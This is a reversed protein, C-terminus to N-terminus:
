QDRDTLPKALDHEREVQERWYRVGLAGGFDVHTPKYRRAELQEETLGLIEAAEAPTIFVHDWEREAVATAVALAGELDRQFRDLQVGSVHSLEGGWAGLTLGPEEERSVAQWADVSKSSAGRAPADWHEVYDRWAKVMEFQGVDPIDEGREKLVWAAKAAQRAAVIFFYLHDHYETNLDTWSKPMELTGRPRESRVRDGEESVRRFANRLRELQRLARDIREVSIQAWKLAEAPNSM